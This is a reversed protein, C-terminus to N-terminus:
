EVGDRWRALARQESAVTEIAPVDLIGRETVVGDVLEAPTVDFTPNEVAIGADGDYVDRPDGTELHVDSNERVKDCAAVAYFPIAERDAALAAMRTGTKNVIRGDPLVADAGVAVIDVDRIALVHAVAADTCLVVDVGGQALTEAVGVGEKNPRSEAVVTASAGQLLADVVTGSRSLTLATKGDLLTGARSAAGEDAALAREIGEVAAREVVEPSDAGAMSRNVRNELVAMSPRADLLAEATEAVTRLEAGEVAAIGASDRLVELARISIYASGHDTDAAVTEPTPAVAEYSRWLDPVTERRLIETPTTWEVTESEENTRVERTNSEFLFPHVRWTRGMAEDRVSFPDGSRVLVIDTIDTEERIEMESTGFPDDDEVYGTVTGWRGPYTEADGVRKLLLVEGRNRLFCTVVAVEDM